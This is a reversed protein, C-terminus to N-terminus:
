IVLSQQDSECHSHVSAGQTCSGISIESLLSWALPKWQAVRGALEGLGWGTMRETVWFHEQRHGYWGSRARDRRITSALCPWPRTLGQIPSASRITLGEPMLAPRSESVFRSKATTGGLRWKWEFSGAVSFQGEWTKTLVPPPFYIILLRAVEM